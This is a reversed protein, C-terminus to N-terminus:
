TRIMIRFFALCRFYSPIEDQLDQAQSEEIASLIAYAYFFPPFYLVTTIAEQRQIGQLAEYLAGYVERAVSPDDGWCDFQVSPTVIPSIHPNSTGGRTFFGLAPLQTGHPLRPCHVRDEVIDTLITQELLYARIATNTDWM